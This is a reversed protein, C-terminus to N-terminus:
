TAGNALFELARAVNEDLSRVSDLVLRHATWQETEGRRRLVADWTLEPYPELGRRRGALRDRHVQDDTCEVEIPFYSVGADDAVSMWIQRGVERYNAADAIVSMGLRLQHSAITAGVNYAALGTEFSQRIGSELMAAEIPDVSVVCAPLLRGLEDAIASKGVGPLGSMIVLV